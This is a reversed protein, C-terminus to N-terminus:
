TRHKTRSSLSRLSSVSHAAKKRDEGGHTTAEEDPKAAPVRKRVMVSGIPPHMAAIPRMPENAEVTPGGSKQTSNMLNSGVVVSRGQVDSSRVSLRMEDQKAGGQASDERKQRKETPLQFAFTAVLRVERHVNVWWKISSAARRPNLIGDNGEFNINLLGQGIEKLFAAIQNKPIERSERIAGAVQSALFQLLDTRIGEGTEDLLFSLPFRRRADPIPANNMYRPQLWVNTKYNRPLFMTGTSGRNKGHGPPPYAAALATSKTSPIPPLVHGFDRLLVKQTNGSMRPKPPAASAHQHTQARSTTVDRRGVTPLHLLMEAAAKEDSDFAVPERANKAGGPATCTRGTGTTIDNHQEDVDVLVPDEEEASDGGVSVDRLARMVKKTAKSFEAEHWCKKEKDEILFRSGVQRFAATICAAMRGKGIKSSKMFEERRAEAIRLLLQHKFMFCTMIQSDLYKFADM